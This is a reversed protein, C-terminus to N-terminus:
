RHSDDEFQDHVEAEVLLRYSGRGFFEVPVGRDFEAVCGKGDRRGVDRPKSGSLLELVDLEGYM